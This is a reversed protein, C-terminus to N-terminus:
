DTQRRELYGPVRVVGRTAAHDTMVLKSGGLIKGFVAYHLSTPNHANTIHPRLRALTLAGKLLRLHKNRGGLVHTRLGMRRAHEELPGGQLAVIAVDHGRNQQAEAIRLVFHEMGGGRLSSVTHVIRLKREATSSTSSQDM